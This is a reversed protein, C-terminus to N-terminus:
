AARQERKAYVSKLHKKVTNESIFLEAAIEKYSYNAQKLQWVDVERPTLGYRQADSKARNEVSRSRNELTVLFCDQNSGDSSFWQVRVRIIGQAETQLEDELIVHTKTSFVDVNNLLSQCIKWINKPLSKLNQYQTDLTKILQNAYRNQHLIEGAKNVIILGDAFNEIAAFLLSAQFEFSLSPYPIQNASISTPTAVAISSLQSKVAPKLM